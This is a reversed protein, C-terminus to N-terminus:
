SRRRARRRALMWAGAIFGLVAAPADSSRNTRCGCGPSTTAGPDTASADAQPEVGSDIPSGAEGAEGADAGADGLTPPDLLGQNLVNVTMGTIAQAITVTSTVKGGPDWTGWSGLEKRDLGWPWDITGAAFVRAGSSAQYYQANFKGVYPSVDTHSLVVQGTPRDAFTLDSFASDMEYGVVHPIKDGRKLGTLVGSPVGAGTYIWHTDDDVVWDIGYCADEPKSTSTCDPIASGNMLGELAMPNRAVQAPPAIRKETSPDFDSLSSWSYTVLKLHAVQEATKGAKKAALALQFEPDGGWALCTDCISSDPYSASKYTLVTSYAGGSGAEFRVQWGLDNGSFFALHTGKDRASQVNDWMSMSWYEDHGSDMWMRRGALVAGLHLDLSDAYAVDYGQQELWQVTPLTWDLWIGLGWNEGQPRDLSLEVARQEGSAKVSAGASNYAYSSKGGIQAGSLDFSKPWPNYAANTTLSDVYLLPAKKTASDDRLVFYTFAEMGADTTFRVVYHGSVWSAPITVTLSDDWDCEAIGTSTDEVPFAQRVGTTALVEHVLRSGVAKGTPSNAYWGIRYIRTRFRTATTSVRLGLDDGNKVSWSSPYADIVGNIGLTTAQSTTPDLPPKWDDKGPDVTKENEIQISNKASSAKTSLIVLASVALTVGARVRRASRARSAKTLESV